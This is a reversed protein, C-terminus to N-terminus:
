SLGRKLKQYISCSEFSPTNCLENFQDMLDSYRDGQEGELHLESIDECENGTRYNCGNM